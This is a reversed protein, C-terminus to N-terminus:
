VGARGHSKALDELFGTERLELCQALTGSPGKDQAALLAVWQWMWSEDQRTLGTAEHGTLGTGALQKDHQHGATSDKTGKSVGRIEFYLAREQGCAAPLFLCSKPSDHMKFGYAFSQSIPLRIKMLIYLSQPVSIQSTFSLDTIKQEKGNRLSWMRALLQLASKSDKALLCQTLAFGVSIFSSFHQQIAHYAAEESAEDLASTSEDLLLLCLKSNYILQKKIICKAICLSQKEGMSMGGILQTQLAKRWEDFNYMKTAVYLAGFVIHKMGLESFTNRISELYRDGHQQWLDQQSQPYALYDWLSEQLQNYPNQPCYMVDIDHIAQVERQANNSEEASLCQAIYQLLTSKGVGSMGTILLQTSATLDISLNRILLRYASSGSDSRVHQTSLNLHQIKLIVDGNSPLPRRASAAVLPKTTSDLPTSTIHHAVPSMLLGEELFDASKNMTAEEDETLVDYGLLKDSMIEMFERVRKYLGKVTIYDNSASLITTCVYILNMCAFSGRALLVIRQSSDSPYSYFIASGIIIYSVIGGAHAFWNTVLNLNLTTRVLSVKNEILSTFISNLKTVETTGGLLLRIVSQHLMYHSHHLRFEGEFQSQKYVLDTITDTFLSSLSSGVAFYFLCAIVALVGFTIALYISYFLLMFPSVVLKELLDALKECFADIDQTVRQDTSSVQKDYVNRINGHVYKIMSVRWNVQCIGSLFTKLSYLVSVATIMIIAVCVLRWFATKNDDTIAVYFEPLLYM